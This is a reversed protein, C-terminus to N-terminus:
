TGEGRPEADAARPGTITGRTPGRGGRSAAALTLSHELYPVYQRPVSGLFVAENTPPRHVESTIAEYETRMAERSVRGSTAAGGHIQHFTGEGLLVVLQAGPLACARRYLDHNVLGGGPLVFREDLGGLEDWMERRMFLSSSEGMPGFLGRGSSAAPSSVAFLEYGDDEWDAGALLADEAAEDYGHEVSRSQLDPGLHWAPATIVARPDVRAGRIAWSLLGPSALRAGDVVLGVLDGQSAELGANAAPAPSPGADDIRHVRVTPPLPDPLVQHAPLPSGNDVVIVELDEHALGRQHPPLVSRLTRPLERAHDFTVVVLSLAPRRSAM